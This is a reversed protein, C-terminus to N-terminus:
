KKNRLLDFCEVWDATDLYFNVFYLHFHMFLVYNVNGAFTVIYPSFASSHIRSATFITGDSLVKQTSCLTEGSIQTLVQDPDIFYIFTRYCTRPDVSLM